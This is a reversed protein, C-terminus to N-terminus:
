KTTTSDNKPGYKKVIFRQQIIAFSTSTLWYLGIGAPLTATIFASIAPFMFRMQSQMTQAMDEMGGGKPKDNSKTNPANKKKGAAVALTMSSLVFQVAGVLIPLIYYPDPKSVDLWLFSTDIGTSGGLTALLVRYLALIVPISVLTPIIGGLPSVKHKKYLEMQAKALSQKDKGHKEKLKDLEPKLQRIKHSSKLSPLRFPLLMIQILITLLIIALGFNGTFSSLWLLVTLIPQKLLTNWIFGLM